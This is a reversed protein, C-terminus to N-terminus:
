MEELKGLNTLLEVTDAQKHVQHELKKLLQAAAQYNRAGTESKQHRHQGGEYTAEDPGHKSKSGGTFFNIEDFLRELKEFVALGRAMEDYYLASNEDLTLNKLNGTQKIEAEITKSYGTLEQM